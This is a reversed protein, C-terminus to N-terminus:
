VSFFLIFLYTQALRVTLAAIIWALAEILIKPNSAAACAKYTQALVFQLSIAEALATLTEGSARGTKVDALKQVASAIVAAATRRSFSGTGRAFLTVIEFTKSCVQVNNDTYSPNKKLVFRVLVDCIAEREATSM